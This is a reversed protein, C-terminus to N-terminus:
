FVSGSGETCYSVRNNVSPSSLFPFPSSFPFALNSPCVGLEQCKGANRDKESAQPKCKQEEAEEGGPLFVLIYLFPPLLSFPSTPRQVYM